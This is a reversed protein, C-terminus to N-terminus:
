ARALRGLYSLWQRTFAEETTGLVAPFAQRTNEEPDGPAASPSPRTAARLYFRVLAQEGHQDVISCAALWAANYSPAITSTAPDFDRETPLANPGSGSRVRDLLAEAITTRPLDVGRYGVYDALGESLWLPVARTTSARVAVHTTEHTVVVEQGTPHLRAFAQPNLVIRDAGARGDAGLAGDTVAAVQDVGAADQGLQEAMEDATAPVVLVVRSGWPRTWVQGVRSVARDGLRRYLDPDRVKGSAVVLTSRGALVRLDPLDWLQAQTGGDSDDALRWGDARRVATLHTEYTRLGRDYGKLAYRGEVRAVWAEPGVQAAREASLAPAPEPTGYDFTGLPLRVLNDFAELQRLGFGSRPSDLTAVFRARDRALVAAAREDLLDQLAEVRAVAPDATPSQPTSDGASASTTAPGASAPRPPGEVRPSGSCGSVLVALSLLAVLVTHAALRRRGVGDNRRGDDRGCSRMSM